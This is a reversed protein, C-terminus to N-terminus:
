LALVCYWDWNLHEEKDDDTFKSKITYKGRALMGSPMKSIHAFETDHQQYFVEDWPTMATQTEGKPGYSGLM